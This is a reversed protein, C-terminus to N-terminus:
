IKKTSFDKKIPTIKPNLVLKAHMKRKTKVIFNEM